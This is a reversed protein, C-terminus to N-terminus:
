VSRGLRREVERREWDAGLVPLLEFAGLGQALLAAGWGLAPWMVWWKHPTSVVNIALLVLMVLVYRFAHLYFARIRRVQGLVLAEDMDTGPKLPENM